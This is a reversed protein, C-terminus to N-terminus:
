RAILLVLSTLMKRPESGSITGFLPALKRLYRSPKEVNKLLNSVTTLLPCLIHESSGSKKSIIPLLLSLLSDSISADNVFETVRSLVNVDRQPLGRKPGNRTLKRQMYELIPPIHPLLLRSGFNLDGTM